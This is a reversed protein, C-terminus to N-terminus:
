RFAQEKKGVVVEQSESLPGDQEGDSPIVGCRWIEDSKVLRGPVEPSTPAYGQEVGNKTWLFRYRVPDGDPDKAPEAIECTLQTSVSPAEPKLRVVAPGPPSNKLSREASAPASKSSGDAVTVECKFVPGKKVRAAPMRWPEGGEVPLPTGGQSWAFAYTLVDGDADEAPKTLTCSLDQGARPSQPDITVAPASPPSNEVTVDAKATVSTLDGDTATVECRWVEGHRATGAAVKDQEPGMPVRENDRLWTFRLPPKEGDPDRAPTKVACVLTDKVTPKGPGLSIEPAVPSSNKVTATAVAAPSEVEGDFAVVSLKLSEGRHLTGPPVAAAEVPLNLKAGNAFWTYRYTVPDNDRDKAPEDIRAKAGTEATPEAPEISVRPPAPVSNQVTLQARGAPGAEAADRPTVEVTWVEHKKLTGAPVAKADKPLASPKGGVLYAYDYTIADGDVDVSPRIVKVDVPDFAFPAEAAFAVAPASPKANQITVKGKAPESDAEGDNAILEVDYAEAGKVGPVEREGGVNVRKGERTFSFRYALRDGDADTAPAAVAAVLTDGGKPKDPFLAMKPPLPPTNVVTVQATAAPGPGEGDDARVEVSIVQKKRASRPPLTDATDAQAVAVGDVLFRFRYRLKDGDGDKAERKVIAKIPDSVKPAAPELAVEPAAPLTNASRLRARGPSGAHEKDRPTVDVSWLEHKRIRGAHIQTQDKPLGAPKGDVFYDYEYTVPDGDPDVSPKDIRVDVSDGAKPAESAFSVSPALPPTNQVTLTAKGVPSESEGDSGVAEVEYVESKKVGSMERGDGSAGVKKGDRSFHFKYTLKDGDVDQSPAALGAVLTDARTAKQPAISPAPATPPTNVVTAQAKAPPSTLEGDDARVEVSVMQKKRAILPPLTDTAGALHVPAGDVHFTYLYKLKDEDADTSEKKIIVKIPDGTKPSAPSFTVEPALPASDAAFAELTAPTGWGEGDSGEVLVAWREGRKVTGAPLEAKTLGAQPKGDKLWSFRYTPKDGDADTADETIKVKCAEARRLVPPEFSLKARGPLSNGIEVQPSQYASGEPAKVEFKWKEHKKTLEKGVERKGALEAVEKGDRFWRIQTSPEPDGDLDFFRYSVKLTDDTTPSAPEVKPDGYGPPNPYRRGSHQGDHGASPWSLPATAKGSRKVKFAAVKDGGGAFLSVFDGAGGWMVAGGVPEGGLKAPFGGAAKGSSKLVHLNGDATAAIVEDKGDRDVDAAAVAGIVKEGVKVPFGAVPKGDFRFAHVKGDLAGVLVELRGDGDLDGLAPGHLLRAGTNAPFGPFLTGDGKVAYVKFDQSAFVLDNLGDADIDGIAPQGTVIYQSSVPFAGLKQGKVDVAYVKGDDCGVAISLSPPAGFLGVAAGSTISGAFSVPFGPLDAGAANLVHLRGDKSGIIIEVRKDGDVDLLTPGSEFGREDKYALSPLPAGDSRFGLLRGSTLAVVIEAKKDGDLDGASVLGALAAKDGLDIPFGSCRKSDGKLCLLQSGVAFLLRETGDGELDVATLPTVLVGPMKTPFGQLNQAGRSAGPLAMTVLLASLLPNKCANVASELHSLVEGM